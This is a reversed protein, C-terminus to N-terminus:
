LIGNTHTYVDNAADFFHPYVDGEGMQIIM